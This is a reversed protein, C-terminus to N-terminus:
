EESILAGLRLEPKNRMSMTNINGPEYRRKIVSVPFFLRCRCVCVEFCQSGPDAFQTIAERLDLALDFRLIYSESSNCEVPRTECTELTLASINMPLQVVQPGGAIGQLRLSIIVHEDFRRPEVFCQPYTTNRLV